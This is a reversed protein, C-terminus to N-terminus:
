VSDEYTRTARRDFIYAVLLLAGGLVIIMGFFGWRAWAAGVFWFLLFGGVGVLLCIGLVSAWFRGGLSGDNDM